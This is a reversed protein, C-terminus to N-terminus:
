NCSCTVHLCNFLTDADKHRKARYSHGSIQPDSVSVNESAKASKKRKHKGLLRKVLQGISSDALIVDHPHLARPHEDYAHNHVRRTIIYPEMWKSGLKGNYLRVNLVSSQVLHKSGGCM